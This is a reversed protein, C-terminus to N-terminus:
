GAGCHKGARVIKQMSIFFLKVVSASRPTMYRQIGEHTKCPITKEGFDRTQEGNPAVFKKSATKRELKVRPFMGELMVHGAAGSDVTVRAEVWRDKVEIIKKSSSCQRNEM